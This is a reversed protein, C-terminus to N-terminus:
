DRTAFRSKPYNTARTTQTIKTIEEAERAEAEAQEAAAHNGEARLEDAKKLANAAKGRFVMEANTSSSLREPDIYAPHGKPITEAVPTNQGLGTNVELGNAQIQQARRLYDAAPPSAVSLGQEAHFNGANVQAQAADYAHEVKSAVGASIPTGQYQESM